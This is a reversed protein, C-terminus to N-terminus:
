DEYNEFAGITDEFINEILIEGERGSWDIKSLDEKRSINIMKEILFDKLQVFFNTTATKGKKEILKEHFSISLHEFVYYAYYKIILYEIGFSEIIEAFNEELDQLSKAEACIEDLLTREAGKAATDDLSSAVGACYELLYNVVERPSTGSNINLGIGSVAAGFGKTKIANLVKGLNQATKVGSKGLILSKGKGYHQSRDILASLNLAIKQFSSKPIYGTDCATTVVRSLKSWNPNGSMGGYAKSTGM